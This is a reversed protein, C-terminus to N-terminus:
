FFSSITALNRNGMRREGQQWNEHCRESCDQRLKAQSNRSVSTIRYSTYIAHLVLLAKTEGPDEFPTQSAAAAYVPSISTEAASSWLMGLACCATMWPPSEAGLEQLAAGAPRL